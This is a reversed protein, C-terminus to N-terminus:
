GGFIRKIRAEFSRLRDRTVTAHQQNRAIDGGDSIIDGRCELIM